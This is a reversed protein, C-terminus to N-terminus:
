ALNAQIRTDFVNLPQAGVIKEAEGNAKVLFVTPTGSVGLANGLAFQNDVEKVYKGSTLCEKFKTMDLGLKQAVSEYLPDGLNGQDKFLEDKFDWFKDEDQEAVCESAEASRHANPHFSLPFHGFGYALDGDLGYKKKIEPLTEKNFRGCFPCEIDSFELLTLKANSNGTIHVNKMADAANVTPTPQPTPTPAPAPAPTPTPAPNNTDTVISGTAPIGIFGGALNGALAAVFVVAFIKALSGTQVSAQKSPEPRSEAKVPEVKRPEFDRQEESM